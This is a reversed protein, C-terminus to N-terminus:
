RIRIYKELIERVKRKNIINDMVVDVLPLDSEKESDRPDAFEVLVTKEDRFGDTRKVKDIIEERGIFEMEKDFMVMKYQNEDIKLLFEDFNLIYEVDYGMKTIMNKLIKAEIVNNKFILLDKHKINKIDEMFADPSEKSIAATEQKFEDNQAYYGDKNSEQIVEENGSYNLFINLVRVIEEKKLPKSIYEDLGEALFAERDGPLANATLAVIPTHELAYKKEYELISHTAEIGDMVPMSIDMFIIDYKNDKFKEFAEKGNNAIDVNLGLSILTKEILKQNIMNDEAILANIKFETPEQLASLHDTKETEVQLKKDSDGEKQSEKFATDL